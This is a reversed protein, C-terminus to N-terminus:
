SEEVPGVFTEVGEERLADLAEDLAEQETEFADEWVTSNDQEDVIELLWGGEGDEYIDIQVTLNGDSYSRSLTSEKPVFDDEM